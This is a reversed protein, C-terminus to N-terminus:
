KTKGDGYQAYHELEMAKEKLQLLIKKGPTEDKSSGSALFEGNEWSVVVYCGDCRVGPKASDILAWIQQSLSKSDM